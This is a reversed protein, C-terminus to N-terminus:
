SSLAHPMSATLPARIASLPRNQKTATRRSVAVTADTADAVPVAVMVAFGGSCAFSFVGTVNVSVVPSSQACVYVNVTSPVASGGWDLLLM